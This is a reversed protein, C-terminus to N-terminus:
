PNLLRDIYDADVQSEGNVWPLVSCGAHGEKICNERHAEGAVWLLTLTAVVAIALAAYKM